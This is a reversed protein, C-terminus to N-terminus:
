SSEEEHCAWNFGEGRAFHVRKGDLLDDDMVVRELAKEKRAGEVDLGALKDQEPNGAEIFLGKGDGIHLSVSDLDGDFTDTGKRIRQHLAPGPRAQSQTTGEAAAETRPAPSQNYAAAHSDGGQAVEDMAKFAIAGFKLGNKARAGCLFQNEGIVEGPAARLKDGIIARKTFAAEHGIRDLAKTRPFVEIKEVSASGLLHKDGELGKGVAKLHIALEREFAVHFAADAEASAAAHIAASDADAPFAGHEVLHGEIPDGVKAERM